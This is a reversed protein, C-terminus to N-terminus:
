CYFNGRSISSTAFDFVLPDKGAVPTAFALPNTSMVAETRGQATMSLQGSAVTALGIFGKRSWPELDPRLASFHHTDHVAVVAVGTETLMQETTQEIAATAPQAFGSRGNVRLYSSEVQHAEGTVTGDAWGSTLSKVYGPVRFLGHGTTGDRRCSACNCALVQAVERSVGADIVTKAVAAILENTTIPAPTLPWPFGQRSPIGM